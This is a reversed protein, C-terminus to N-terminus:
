KPQVPGMSALNIVQNGTGPNTGGSGTSGSGTSFNGGVGAGVGGADGVSGGTGISGTGGTTSVTTTISTTNGPTQNGFLSIPSTITIPTLPPPQDAAIEVTLTITRSETM